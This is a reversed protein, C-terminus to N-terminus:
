PNTNYSGYQRCSVIIPYQRFEQGARLQYEPADGSSLDLDVAKCTGGLTLDAEVAAVFADVLDMLTTEATSESGATSAIRYAFMVFYHADRATLGTAKRVLPQSGMSVWANVRKDWSEPVGIQVSGIGALGELLTVLQNAVAKTNLSM